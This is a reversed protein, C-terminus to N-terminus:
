QPEVEKALPSNAHIALARHSAAALLPLAPSLDLSLYHWHQIYRDDPRTEGTHLRGKAKM